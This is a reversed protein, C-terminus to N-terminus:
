EKRKGQGANGEMRLPSSNTLNAEQMQGQIYNKKRKKEKIKRGKEREKRGGREKKRGGKRGERRGEKRGGGKM